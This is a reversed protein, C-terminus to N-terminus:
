EKDCNIFNTKHDALEQDNRFKEGCKECFYKSMGDDHNVSEAAEPVVEVLSGTPLQEESLRPKTFFKEHDLKENIGSETQDAAADDQGTIDTRHVVKRDDLSITEIYIYMTKNKKDTIV